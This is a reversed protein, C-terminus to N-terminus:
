GTAGGRPVWRGQAPRWRDIAVVGLLLPDETLCYVAAFATYEVRGLLTVAVAMALAVHRVPFVM